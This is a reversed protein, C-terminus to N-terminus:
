KKNFNGFSTFPFFRFSTTGVIDKKKIVGISRSDLSNNRNDGLVFYEDDGLHITSSACGADNMDTNGYNEDLLEGNIYINSVYNNGIHTSSIRISENPLGIVRKVIKSNNYKIVVVDFRSFSKDFKKLFLLDGNDLTPNMSSGDVRVPTIIFTRILLVVVIIIIYSLIDKLHM